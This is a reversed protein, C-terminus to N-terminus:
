VAEDTEMLGALVLHSTGYGNAHRPWQLLDHEHKAPLLTALSFSAPPLM